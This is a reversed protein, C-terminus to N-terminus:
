VQMHAWLTRLVETQKESISSENEAMILAKASDNAASYKTQNEKIKKRLEAETM